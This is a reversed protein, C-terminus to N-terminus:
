PASGNVNIEAATVATWGPLSHGCAAAVPRSDPKILAFGSQISGPM